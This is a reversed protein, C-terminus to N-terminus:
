QTPQDKQMFKPKNMLLWGTLFGGLSSGAVAWMSNFVHYAFGVWNLSDAAPVAQM